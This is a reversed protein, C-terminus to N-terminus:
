LSIHVEHDLQFLSQLRRSSINVSLSQLKDGISNYLPWGFVFHAENKVVNLSNIYNFIYTGILHFSHFQNQLGFASFTLPISLADLHALERSHRLATAETLNLSIDVQHDLQSFSTLNGPVVNEFLSAFKIDRIHDLKV